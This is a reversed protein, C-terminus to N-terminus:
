SAPQVQAGSSRPPTPPQYWLGADEAQLTSRSAGSRFRMATVAPGDLLALLDDVCPRAKARLPPVIEVKPGLDSSPKRGIVVLRFGEIGRDRPEEITDAVYQRRIPTIEVSSRDIASRFQALTAVRVEIDGDHLSIRVISNSGGRLITTVANSKEIPVASADVDAGVIEGIHKRQM